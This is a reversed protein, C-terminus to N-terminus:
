NTSPSDGGREPPASGNTSPAPMAERYRPSIDAPEEYPEPPATPKGMTYQLLLKIAPLHGDGALEFLKRVAKEVDEPQVVRFMVARFAAMPRAFPNGPGGHNGPAFRGGRDRDLLASTLDAIVPDETM